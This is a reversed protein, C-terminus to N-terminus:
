PKAGPAGIMSLVSHWKTYFRHPFSIYVSMGEAVNAICQVHSISRSLVTSRAVRERLQEVFSTGADVIIVFSSPSDLSQVPRM